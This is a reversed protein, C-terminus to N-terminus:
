WSAQVASVGLSQQVKLAAARAIRSPLCRKGDAGTNSGATKGTSDIGIERAAGHGRTM